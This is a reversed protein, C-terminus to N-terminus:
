LAWRCAHLIEFMEPHYVAGRVGTLFDSFFPTGLKAINGVKTPCGM